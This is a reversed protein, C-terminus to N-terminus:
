RIREATVKINDFVHFQWDRTTWAMGSDELTRRLHNTIMLPSIGKEDFWKMDLLVTIKLGQM